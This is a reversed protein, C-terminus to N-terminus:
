LFKLQKYIIKNSKTLNDKPLLPQFNTYHSLNLFEEETKALSIPVIHDLHINDWNMESTFQNEIYEKFFEYSCGLIEFSKSKKVIKCNNFTTKLLSRFNVKLKFLKDEKIKNKRWLNVKQRIVEKKEQKYKIRTEKYKEYNLIYNKRNFENWCVKCSNRFKNEGKGSKPFEIVQKENNCKVCKKLEM